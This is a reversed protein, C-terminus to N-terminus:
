NSANYEEIIDEGGQSKWSEIADEFGAEDLQGIIYNYTADTIIEQLRAGDNVYTESYLSVSPDEILHNENDKTLEEAKEKVDYDFQSEYRGNTEPEGIGISMYPKVESDTLSKDDSPLAKDDVVEYHEGEIGWYTLNAVEPTMLQDFFDLINLLEEESEVSSKPFMVLSGYGPISWVGFEGDPGAIENQVDFLVEENIQIADNNISVVDGMSGVYMGATGNKFFEQQDTKSTVPFDQNIYGNDYMEKFFDMTQKYEDFMFEPLLEGDKEGWNNPTGFWSAVTKFAGYILDSRDTLGFTDDEGNENPDDETFARAMEMFEDTTTPADLGLNDAWDKRYILGQSSLPRGQYLTYLKGDVNTNDLVTDKLKSLNEFQELYQGVEWFQGDEIAERFQIFSAQNKLFVAEPLSNTAFATNLRDEYNSDPVWQIDVEKGTIENVKDLIKDNPVEPTHLNAMITFSNGAEEGSSSSDSSANNDSSCATIVLLVVIGLMIIQWKKRLDM